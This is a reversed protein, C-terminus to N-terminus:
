LNVIPTKPGFKLLLVIMSPYSTSVLEGGSIDHRSAFPFPKAICDAIIVEARRDPQAFLVKEQM